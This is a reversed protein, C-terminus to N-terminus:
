LMHLLIILVISPKNRIFQNLEEIDTNNTYLLDLDVDGVSGSELIGSPIV